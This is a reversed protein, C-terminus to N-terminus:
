RHFGELNDENADTGGDKISYDVVLEGCADANFVESDEV